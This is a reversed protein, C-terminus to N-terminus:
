LFSGPTLRGAPKAHLIMGLIKYSSIGNDTIGIQIFEGVMSLYLRKWAYYNGTNGDLTMPLSKQIDSSNNLYFNFTLEVSPAVEYYIDLYGYSAKMGQPIFPNLRKTQINSLIVAGDDTDRVNLQYVFGFEDGGLLAPQQAINQYAIWAYDWEEWTSGAADSSQGVAFNAWTLDTTTFGLGLCSLPLRYIAWTNELFNYVIVRSSTLQVNGASADGIAPFLM